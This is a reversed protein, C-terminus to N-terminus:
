CTGAITCGLDRDYSRERKRTVILVVLAVALGVGIAVKAGDSLNNRGARQIQPRAAPSVKGAKADAVLKTIGVRLGENPKTGKGTSTPSVPVIAVPKGTTETNAPTDALVSPGAATCLLALALACSTFRHIM